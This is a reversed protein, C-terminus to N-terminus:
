RTSGDADGYSGYLGGGVKLDSVPGRNEMIDQAQQNGRLEGKVFDQGEQMGQAEMKKEEAKGEAKFFMVGVQEIVPDLLGAMYAAGLVVAVIASTILFTIAM